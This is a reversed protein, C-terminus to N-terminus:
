VGHDHFRVTAGTRTAWADWQNELHREITYSDDRAQRVGSWMVNVEVGRLDARVPPPERRDAVLWLSVPSGDGDRALQSATDAVLALDTASPRANAWLREVARLAQSREARQAAMAPQDAAGMIVMQSISGDTRVFVFRTGDRGVLSSVRARLQRLDRADLSQVAVVISHPARIANKSKSPVIGFVSFNTLVAIWLAAVAVLGLRRSGGLWGVREPRSRSAAPKGLALVAARLEDPATPRGARLRRITEADKEASMSRRILM